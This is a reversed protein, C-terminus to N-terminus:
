MALWAAINYQWNKPDFSGRIKQIGENGYFTALEDANAPINILLQRTREKWYLDVSGNPGVGITPIPLNLGCSRWLRENHEALFAVSRNLTDMSYVTMGESALEAQSALIQKSREIEAELGRQTVKVARSASTGATDEWAVVHEKEETLEEPQMTDREWAVALTATPM